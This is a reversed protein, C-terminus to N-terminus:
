KNTTGYLSRHREDWPVFMDGVYQKLERDMTDKAYWIDSDSKSDELIENSYEMYVQTLMDDLERFKKERWGMRGLALTVMDLEFVRGFHRQEADRIAQKAALSNLFDSAQRSGKKVGPKM